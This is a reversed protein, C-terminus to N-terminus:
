RLLIGALGYFFVAISAFVSIRGLNESVAVLKMAQPARDDRGGGDADRQRFAEEWLNWSFM